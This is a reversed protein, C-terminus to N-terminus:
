EVVKSDTNHAALQRRLRENEINLDKITHFSSVLTLHIVKDRYHHQMKNLMNFIYEEILHSDIYDIEAKIEKSKEEDLIHKYLERTLQVRRKVKERDTVNCAAHLVQQHFHGQLIQYNSPADPGNFLRPVAHHAQLDDRQGTVECQPQGYKDAIIDLREKRAQRHEDGYASSSNRM